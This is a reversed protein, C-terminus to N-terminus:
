FWPSWRASRLLRSEWRDRVELADHMWTGPAKYREPVEGAILAVLGEPRMIKQWLVIERSRGSGFATRFGAHIELLSHGRRALEKMSEFYHAGSREVYRELRGVYPWVTDEMFVTPEHDVGEVPVASLDLSQLPSWPLPVLLKAVADNRLGDLGAVWESLDGDAVRDVLGQWAAGDRVATITVVRYSPGTGHAHHLFYLLRADDGEALAPLWGDRFAREFDAERAGVVEHTEHLFLV